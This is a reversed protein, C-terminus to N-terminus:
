CCSCNRNQSTQEKRTQKEPAAKELSVGEDEMKKLYKAPDKKFTDICMACCFYVRKGDHDAYIEKNVKGGMVPCNAQEKAFASGALTLSFILLVAISMIFKKM